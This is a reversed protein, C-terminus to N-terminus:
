THIFISGLTHQITQFIHILQKPVTGQMSFQLTYVKDYSSEKSSSLLKSSLNSDSSLVQGNRLMLGNTISSKLLEIADKDKNVEWWKKLFADKEQQTDFKESFNGTVTIVTRDQNIMKQEEDRLASKAENVSHYTKEDRQCSEKNMDCQIYINRCYEGKEVARDTQYFVGESGAYSITFKVTTTAVPYTTDCKLFLVNGSYKKLFPEKNQTVAQHGSLVISTSVVIGVTIFLPLFTGVVLGMVPRKIVVLLAGAVWFALFFYFTTMLVADSLGFWNGPEAPFGFNGLVQAFSSVPIVTLFLLPLVLCFSINLGFLPLLAILYVKSSTSITGSEVEPLIKEAEAKQNEILTM